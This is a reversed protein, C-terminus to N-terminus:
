TTSEETGRSSFSRSIKSNILSLFLIIKYLLDSRSEFTDKSSNDELILESVFIM